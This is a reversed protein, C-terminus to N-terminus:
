FNNNMKQLRLQWSTEIREKGQIQNISLSGPQPLKFQRLIDYLGVIGM